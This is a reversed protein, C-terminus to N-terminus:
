SFISVVLSEHPFIFSIEPSKYAESFVVFFLDTIHYLWHWHFPLSHMNFTFVHAVADTTAEMLMLSHEIGKPQSRLAASHTMGPDYQEHVLLPSLSSFLKYM